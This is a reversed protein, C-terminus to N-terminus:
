RVCEPAAAALDASASQLHRGLQSSGPGAIVSREALESFHHYFRRPIVSLFIKSVEFTPSVLIVTAYAENVNSRLDESNDEAGNKPQTHSRNHPLYHVKDPDATSNDDSKAVENLKNRVPVRGFTSKTASQTTASTNTRFDVHIFDLLSKGMVDEPIMEPPVSRGSIELVSYTGPQLRMSFLVGYASASECLELRKCLAQLISEGSTLSSNAGRDGQQQPLLRAALVEIDEADLTLNQRIVNEALKDAAIYDYM